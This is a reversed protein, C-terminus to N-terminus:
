FSQCDTLFARFGNSASGVDSYTATSAPGTTVMEFNWFGATPNDVDYTIQCFGSDAGVLGKTFMTVNSISKLGDFIECTGMVSGDAFTYRSHIISIRLGNVTVASPTHCIIGGTLGSGAAGPTGPTGVPGQPGQPGQPGPPGMPGPGCATFLIACIVLLRNM